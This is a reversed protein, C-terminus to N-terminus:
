AAGDFAGTADPLWDASVAHGQMVENLRRQTGKTGGAPLAAMDRLFAAEREIDFHRYFRRPREDSRRKM